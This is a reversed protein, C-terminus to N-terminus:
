VKRCFDVTNTKDTIYCSNLSHMSARFSIFVGLIAGASKKMLMSCQNLDFMIMQLFPEPLISEKKSGEQKWHISLHYVMFERIMQLYERPVIKDPIVSMAVEYTKDLIETKWVDSKITPWLLQTQSTFDHKLRIELLMIFEETAKSPKGGECYADNDNSDSERISGKRSEPVM